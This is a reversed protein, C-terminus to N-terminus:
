EATPGASNCFSHKLYSQGKGLQSWGVRVFKATVLANFRIMLVIRIHIEATPTAPRANQGDSGSPRTARMTENRAIAAPCDEKWSRGNKRITIIPVADRALLAEHCRTTDHSSDAAVTRINQGM